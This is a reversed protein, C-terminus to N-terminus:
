DESIRLGSMRNLLLPDEEERPRVARVRAGAVDASRAPETPPAEDETLGPREQEARVDATTGSRASETPPDEDDVALPATVQQEQPTDSM